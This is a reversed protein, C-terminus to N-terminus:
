GILNIFWKFDILKIFHCKLYNLTSILAKLFIFYTFTWSWQRDMVGTNLASLSTFIVHHVTIVPAMIPTPQYKTWHALLTYGAPVTCSLAWDASCSLHKRLFVVDKRKLSCIFFLTETKMERSKRREREKETMRERERQAEHVYIIFYSWQCLHCGSEKVEWVCTLVWWHNEDLRHTCSQTQMYIKHKVGLSFYSKNTIQKSWWLLRM